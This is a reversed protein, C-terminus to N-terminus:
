KPRYETLAECAQAHRDRLMAIRKGRDPEQDLRDFIEDTIRMFEDRCRAIMGIVFINVAELEVLKNQERHVKLRKENVKEWELQRSAEALSIDSNDEGPGDVSSAPLRNQQKRAAHSLAPRTNAAIERRARQAWEAPDFAGEPIAPCRGDSIAKALGQTSLDVRKALSAMSRPDVPRGM